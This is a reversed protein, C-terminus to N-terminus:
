KKLWIESLRIDLFRLVFLQIKYEAKILFNCALALREMTRYVPLGVTVGVRGACVYTSRLFPLINM